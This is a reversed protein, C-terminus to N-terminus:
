AVGRFAAVDRGYELLERQRRLWRARSELERRDRWDVVIAIAARIHPCPPYGKACSACQPRHEFIGDVLERTLVALEANDAETWWPPQAPREAASQAASHSVATSAV